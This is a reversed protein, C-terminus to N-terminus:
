QWAVTLSCFDTKTSDCPETLCAGSVVAETAAILDAALATVEEATISFAEERIVGKADPEVFSLLM